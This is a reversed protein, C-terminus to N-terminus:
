GGGMAVGGLALGELGGTGERPWWWGSLASSGVGSGGVTQLPM